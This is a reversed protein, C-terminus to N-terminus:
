KLKRSMEMKQMKFKKIQNALDKIKNNQNNVLKQLNKQERDKKKYDKLENQLNDIKNIFKNKQNVGVSEDRM